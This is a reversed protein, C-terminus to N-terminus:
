NLNLAYYRYARFFFFLGYASWGIEWFNEGVDNTKLGKLHLHKLNLQNPILCILTTNILTTWIDNIFKNRTKKQKTMKNCSKSNYHSSNNNCLSLIQKRSVHSFTISIIFTIVGTTVASKGSAKLGLAEDTANALLIEVFYRVAKLLMYHIFVVKCVVHSYQFGTFWDTM